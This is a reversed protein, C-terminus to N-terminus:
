LELTGTSGIFSVIRFRVQGDQEIRAKYYGKKLEVQRSEGAKLRLELVARGSDSDTLTLRTARAATVTLFGHADSRPRANQGAPETRTVEARSRPATDSFWSLPNPIDPFQTTNHLAHSGGALAAAMAAFKLLNMYRDHIPRASKGPKKGPKPRVRAAELVSTLRPIDADDVLRDQRSVIYDAFGKGSTVNDPMPFRFAADETFAIVSFLRDEGLGLLNGLALKRNFNPRLPNQFTATKGGSTRTWDPDFAKGSIEGREEMAQVVFVGFPSLVVLDIRVFGEPTEFVADHVLRYIRTDLHKKALKGIRRAAHGGTRWRSSLVAMAAVVAIILGFWLAALGLFPLAEHADAVWPGAARATSTLSFIDPIPM